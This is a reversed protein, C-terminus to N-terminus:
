GTNFPAMAALKCMAFYRQNIQKKLEVYGMEALEEKSYLKVLDNLIHALAEQKEMNVLKRARRVQKRFVQQKTRIEFARKIHQVKALRRAETLSIPMEGMERLKQNKWALHQQQAAFFKGYEYDILVFFLETVWIINPIYSGTTEDWVRDCHVAGIAEIHENIARSTRSYCPKGKSNYTTLGCADSIQSLTMFVKGTILNVHAALCEMIANIARCRHLNIGRENRLLEHTVAHYRPLARWLPHQSPSNERAAKRIADIIRPPKIDPKPSQYCPYSNKVYCGRPLSVQQLKQSILPKQNDVIKASITSVPPQMIFFM